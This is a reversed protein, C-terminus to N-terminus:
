ICTLRTNRQLTHTDGVQERRHQLHDGATDLFSDRCFYCEVAVRSVDAGIAAVPVKSEAIAAAAAM